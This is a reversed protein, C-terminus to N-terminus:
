QDQADQNTEPQAETILKQIEEDTTEDTIKDLIGLDVAKELLKDRQSKANAADDAPKASAKESKKDKKDSEKTKRDKVVTPGEASGVEELWHEAIGRKVDEASLGEIVAGKQYQNGDKRVICKTVYVKAM